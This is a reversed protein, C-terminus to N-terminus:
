ASLWQDVKENIVPHLKSDPVHKAGKLLYGDKFNPYVKRCNALSREGPFFIDAGAVICYVPTEVHKVDNDKVLPPRRFDTRTGLLLYEQFELDEEEISNYFADIFKRLKKRRKTIFYQIMPWTLKKMSQLFPGNTFGAPVVFIAKSVVSQDHQLLKNLIFGGYSVGLVPVQELGLRRIVECLWKGYSEDTLSLRTKASKTAQGVTDVGIVRYKQLLGQMAEITMAAGANIGHTVVIPPNDEAGAIVVHTNGAFTDVNISRTTAEVRSLRVDYLRM